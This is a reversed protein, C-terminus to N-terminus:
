RQDEAVAWFGRGKLPLAPTPIPKEADFCGMGRRVEGKFPSPCFVPQLNYAVGPQRGGKCLRLSEVPM